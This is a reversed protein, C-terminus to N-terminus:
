FLKRKKDRRLLKLVLNELPGGLEPDSSLLHKQMASIVSPSYIRTQGSGDSHTVKGRPSCPNGVAHLFFSIMM